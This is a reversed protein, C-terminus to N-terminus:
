LYIGAVLLKALKVLHFMIVVISTPVSLVILAVMGLALSPRTNMLLSQLLGVAECIDSNYSGHYYYQKEWEMWDFPAEYNKETIKMEHIRMRLVIMDEDILNGEYDGGYGYADRRSVSIKSSRRKHVSFGTKPHLLKSGFPNGAPLLSSNYLTVPEM